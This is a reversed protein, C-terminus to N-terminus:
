MSDTYKILHLFSAKFFKYKLHLHAKLHFTADVLIVMMLQPLPYNISPTFFFISLCIGLSLVESKISSVLAVLINLHHYFHVSDM